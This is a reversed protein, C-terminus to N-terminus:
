VSSAPHLFWTLPVTSGGGNLINNFSTHRGAQRELRAAVKDLFSNFKEPNELDDKPWIYQCLVKSSIGRELGVCSGVRLGDSVVEATFDLKNGEKLREYERWEVRRPVIAGHVEDVAYYADQTKGDKSKGDDEFKTTLRVARVNDKREPIQAIVFDVNDRYAGSGRIGRMEKGSHGILLILAGAERAFRGVVGTATLMSATAANEEMGALATAMTDMVILSPRFSEGHLRALCEVVEQPNNMLPISHMRFRENADADDFDLGRAIMQARTRAGIGHRGEGCLYLIQLEPHQALLDFCITLVVGTKHSGTPGFLVGVGYPLRPILRDQDLFTIPPERAIEGLRWLKNARQEEIIRQVAPLHGHVQSGPLIADAGVENQGYKYANHVCIELWPREHEGLWEMLINVAMEESIGRDKGYSAITYTDPPDHEGWPGEERYVKDLLARYRDVNVPLDFEIDPDAQRKERQREAVVAGIWRPYSVILAAREIVYPVGNIVSGPGLVLGGTGRVDIHGRVLPSGGIEGQQKFLLHRGGSPTRHVRTPPADGHEMQLALWWSEGQAGNKNDIDIVALGSKGTDIGINCNLGYQQWLWSIAAPDRTSIEQWGTLAPPKDNPRCPFVHFGEAALALAQPLLDTM